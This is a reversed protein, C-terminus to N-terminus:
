KIRRSRMYRANEECCTLCRCKSHNYATRGHSTVKPKMAAAEERGAKTLRYRYAPRGVTGTKVKGVVEIIGLNIMMQMFIYISSMSYRGRSLEKAQTPKYLRPLAYRKFAGYLKRSM